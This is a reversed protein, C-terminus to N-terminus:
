DEGEDESSGREDLGELSERECSIEGGLYRIDDRKGAWAKYRAFCAKAAKRNIAAIYIYFGVQPFQDEAIHIENIECGSPLPPLKARKRAEVTKFDLTISLNM